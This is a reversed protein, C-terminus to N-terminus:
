RTSKHKSKGQVRERIRFGKSQKGDAWPNQHHRNSQAAHEVERADGGRERERGGRDCDPYLERGPM